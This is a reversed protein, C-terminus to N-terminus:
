RTRGSTGAGASGKGGGQSSSAAGGAAGEEDADYVNYDKRDEMAYSVIKVLERFTMGHYPVPETAEVTVVFQWDWGNIAVDVNASGQNCHDGNALKCMEVVATATAKVAPWVRFFM